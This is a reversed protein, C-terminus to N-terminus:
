ALRGLLEAWDLPDLDITEGTDNDFGTVLAPGAVFDGPQLDPKVLQTATYNPPATFKGEDNVFVYVNPLERIRVGEINGGVAAQLDDLGDVDIHRRQGNVEIVVAKHASM